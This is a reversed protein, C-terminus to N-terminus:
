LIRKISLDANAEKYFISNRINENKEMNSQNYLENWREENSKDTLVQNNLKLIPNLNGDRYVPFNNAGLRNVLINWATQHHKNNLDYGKTEIFPWDSHQKSVVVCGDTGMNPDFGIGMLGDLERIYGNNSHWCPIYQFACAISGKHITGWCPTNGNEQSYMYMYLQKVTKMLSDTGGEDGKFEIWSHQYVQKNPFIGFFTLDCAKRDTDSIQPVFKLDLPGKVFSDCYISSAIKSTTTENWDM